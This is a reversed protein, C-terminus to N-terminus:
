FTSQLTIMNAPLPLELEIVASRPWYSLLFILSLKFIFSFFFFILSKVSSLTSYSWLYSSSLFWHNYSWSSQNFDLSCFITSVTVYCHSKIRDIWFGDEIVTGSRSLFERLQRLTFPRVLNRISLINSTKNKAPSPSRERVFEPDETSVQPLLSVREEIVYSFFLIILLISITQFFPIIRRHETWLSSLKELIDEFKELSAHIKRTITVVNNNFLFLFQYFGMVKLILVDFFFAEQPSPPLPNFPPNFLVMEKVKCKVMKFLHKM